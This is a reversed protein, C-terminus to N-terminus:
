RNTKLGRPAWPRSRAHPAAGLVKVYPPPQLFVQAPRGPAKTRVLCWIPRSSPLVHSCTLHCAKWLGTALDPVSMKAPLSFEKFFFFFLNEGTVPGTSLHRKSETHAQPRPQRESRPEKGESIFAKHATLHPGVFPPPSAPRPPPRNWRAKM